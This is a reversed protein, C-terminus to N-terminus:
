LLMLIAVGGVAIVAGAKAQLSLREKEVYRVLPLMMVPVTAMLTAAVGVHAYKVAILSLTIGLYPGTLTGVLLLLLARREGAFVRWPNGYRGAVAMIPGLLLVSATIRVFAAVFGDIPGLNFAQKAFILNAAQGLAGLLALVLGLTRHVNPTSAGLSRERVVLVVGLLTTAMGVFGAPRLREGLVLYALLTAFAPALAMVLMSLRAGILAFAQFLFSDGLVLGVLGSLALLGVQLATLDTPLGFLAVTAGLLASALGLRSINVQVAGVRRIAAAFALPGISWCIATLLAALEGVFPM